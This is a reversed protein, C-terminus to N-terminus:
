NARRFVVVISFRERFAMTQVSATCMDLGGDAGGANRVMEKEVACGDTLGSAVESSRGGAAM